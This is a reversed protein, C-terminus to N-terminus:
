SCFRLGASSKGFLGTVALIDGSRAGRRLMLHQRQATGFLSVSIILDSAEMLTVGSERLCQIRTRRFQSRRRNRRHRKPYFNNALRDCCAGGDTTRRKLCFDSVNMVMAKRAAQFLNWKGQACETKGVLMDTKLSPCRQNESLNVASVDDGFCFLCAQCKLSTPKSHNRNIRHKEM